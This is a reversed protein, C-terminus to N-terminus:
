YQVEFSAAVEVDWELFNSGAEDIAIPKAWIGTAALLDHYNGEETSEQTQYTRTAFTRGSVYESIEVPGSGTQRVGFITWGDWDWTSEGILAYVYSGACVAAMRSDIVAGGAKTATLQMSGYLTGETQNGDAGVQFTATGGASALLETEAYDGSQSTSAGLDSQFVSSVYPCDNPAEDDWDTNCDATIEWDGAAAAGGNQVSASGYSTALVPDLDNMSDQDTVQNANCYIAGNAPLNRDDTRTCPLNGASAWSAAISVVVIVGRLCSAKM